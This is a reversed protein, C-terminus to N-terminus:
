LFLIAEAMIGLFSLIIVLWLVAVLKAKASLPEQKVVPKYVPIPPGPPPTDPTVHMLVTDLPHREPDKAYLERADLWDKHPYLYHYYYGKKDTPIKVYNRAAAEADVSHPSVYEPPKVPHVPCNDYRRHMELEPRSGLIKDNCGRPASTQPSNPCGTVHAGDEIGCDKCRFIGYLSM